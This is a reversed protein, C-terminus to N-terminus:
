AASDAEDPVKTLQSVMCGDALVWAAYRVGVLHGDRHRLSFIGHQSCKRVYSAFKSSVEMNPASIDDIRMGLLEERAYGVLEAARDTVHIYRRNRDVFMVCEREDIQHGHATVIAEGVAKLLAEPGSLPEVQFDAKTRRVSASVVFIRPERRHAAEIIRAMSIARTVTGILLVDIRDSGALATLAQETTRALVVAYGANELLWERTETIAKGDAVFLITPGAAGNRQREGM